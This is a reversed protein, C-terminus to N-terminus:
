LEMSMSFEGIEIAYIMQIIKWVSITGLVFMNTKSKWSSVLYLYGFITNLFIKVSKVRGVLIFLCLFFFCNLKLTVNRISKLYLQVAFPSRVFINNRYFQAFFAGICAFIQVFRFQNNFHIVNSRKMKWKIFLWQWRIWMVFRNLKVCSNFQLRPFFFLKMEKKKKKNTPGLICVSYASFARISIMLWPFIHTKVRKYKWVDNQKPMSVM